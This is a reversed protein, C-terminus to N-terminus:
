ATMAKNSECWQYLMTHSGMDINKATQMNQIKLISDVIRLSLTYNTFDFEEFILSFAQLNICM